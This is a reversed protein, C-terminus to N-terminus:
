KLVVFLIIKSLNNLVKKSFTTKMGLYLLYLLINQSQVIFCSINTDQKSTLPRCNSIKVSNKPNENLKDVWERQDIYISLFAM